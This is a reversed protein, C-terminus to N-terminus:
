CCWVLVNSIPHMDRMVQEGVSRAGVVAVPVMGTDNIDLDEVQGEKGLNVVAVKCSDALSMLVTVGNM